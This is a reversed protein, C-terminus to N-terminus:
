ATGLTHLGQSLCDETYATKLTHLVQHVGYETFANSLTHQVRYHKGCTRTLQRHDQKWGCFRNQEAGSGDLFGFWEIKTPNTGLSSMFTRNKPWTYWVASGEKRSSLVKAAILNQLQSWIVNLNIFFLHPKEIHYLGNCPNGNLELGFGFRFRWKPVTALVLVWYTCYKTYATSLTWEHDHCASITLSYKVEPEWTITCHLVLFLSILHSMTTLFQSKLSNQTRSLNGIGICHTHSQIWSSIVGIRPKQYRILCTM